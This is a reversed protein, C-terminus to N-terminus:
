RVNDLSYWPGSFVYGFLKGSSALAPFLSEELMVKGKSKSLFEFVEPNFLYIGENVLTAKRGKDHKQVFSTIRNGTLRTVGFRPKSDSPTLVITAIAKSALHQNYVDDLNINFINDGNFAFFPKGSVKDKVLAMAGETGKPTEEMVYSIKLGQSTGDGVHSFISESDKGVIMIVETIDNRKFEGLMYDIVPKGKVAVLPVPVSRGNVIAPEGGAFVVAKKPKGHSISAILLQEIAHSRNRINVGDITGDIASLLDKDLTITLREKM